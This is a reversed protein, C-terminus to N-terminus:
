GVNSCLSLHSSGDENAMKAYRGFQLGSRKSWPGYPMRLPIRLSIKFTRPTEKRNKQKALILLSQVTGRSDLDFGQSLLNSRHHSQVPVLGHYVCWLGKIYLSRCYWKLLSDTKMYKELPYVTIICYIHATHPPNTCICAQLYICISTYNHKM